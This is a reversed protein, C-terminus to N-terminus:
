PHELSKWFATWAAGVADIPSMLGKMFDAFPDETEPHLLKNRRIESIDPLKNYFRDIEAILVDKDESCSSDDLYCLSKIHDIDTLFKDIKNRCYSCTSISEAKELFHRADSYNGYQVAQKAELLFTKVDNVENVIKDITKEVTEKDMITETM